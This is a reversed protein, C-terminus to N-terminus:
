EKEATNRCFDVAQAIDAFWYDANIYRSIQQDICSGGVMIRHHKIGKTQHLLEVVNKLFSLSTTLLCSIAIFDPGLELAKAVFTQPRVDVGLDIVKFGNCELLEKLLNKGLDHIDGEITGLLVTGITNSTQHEKLCPKLFETFQRMIEGAMILASIFYQGKEFREGVRQVGEICAKLLELPDIGADFLTSLETLCEKEKLETVLEILKESNWTTNYEDTM